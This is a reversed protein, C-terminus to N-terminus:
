KLSKRISKLYQYPQNTTRLPNPSRTAMSIAVGASALGAILPSVELVGAVGVGGLSIGAISNFDLAIRSRLSAISKRIGVGEMARDIDKLAINLRYIEISKARIVDNSSVIKLYVEDFHARFADLEASYRQKFELIDNLPVDCHPVPIMNFLEFDISTLLENKEPKSNYDPGISTWVGPEEADNKEFAQEISNYTMIEAPCVTQGVTVNNGYTHHIRTRQLVGVSELFMLSSATPHYMTLATLPFDLKDWFLLYKRLEYESM